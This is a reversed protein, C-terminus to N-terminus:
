QTIFARTRLVLTWPGSVVPGCCWCGYPHCHLYFCTFKFSTLRRCVEDYWKNTGNRECIVFIITQWHALCFGTAHQTIWWRFILLDIKNVQVPQSRSLQGRPPVHCMTSCMLFAALANSTLWHTGVSWVPSTRDSLPGEEHAVLPIRIYCHWREPHSNQMATTLCLFKHFPLFLNESRQSFPVKQQRNKKLVSVPQSSKEEGQKQFECKVQKSRVCKRMKQIRHLEKKMVFKNQLTQSQRLFPRWLHAM